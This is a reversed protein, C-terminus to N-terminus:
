KFQASQVQDVYSVPIGALFSVVRVSTNICSAEASNAIGAVMGSVVPMFTAFQRATKRGNTPKTAAGKKTQPHPKPQVSKPNSSPRYIREAKPIVTPNWRRNVCRENSVLEM